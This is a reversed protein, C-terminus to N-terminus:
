WHVVGYQGSQTKSYDILMPSCVAAPALASFQASQRSSEGASKAFTHAKNACLCYRGGPRVSKPEYLLRLLLHPVWYREGVSHAIRLKSALVQEM